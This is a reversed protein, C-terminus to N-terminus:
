HIQTVSNWDRLPLAQLLDGIRDAPMEICIELNSGRSHVQVHDKLKKRFTNALKMADGGSNTQVEIRGNVGSRLDMGGSVVASALWVQNTSPITNIKAQLWTPIGTSKDRNDIIHRLAPAPAAVATTPNLFLVAMQEDGLMTYGKYGLRQAGERSVRPELGM